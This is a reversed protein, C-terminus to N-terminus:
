IDVEDCCPTVTATGGSALELAGSASGIFCIGGGLVSTVTQSACSTFTTGSGNYFLFVNANRQACAYTNDLTYVAASVVLKSTFPDYLADVRLTDTAALITGDCADQRTRSVNATYGTEIYKYYHPYLPSGRDIELCYSGGFSTTVAEAFSVGDGGECMSDCPVCGNVTVVDKFQVNLRSPLCTEGDGCRVFSPSDAGAECCKKCCCKALLGAM